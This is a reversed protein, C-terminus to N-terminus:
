SEERMMRVLRQELSARVTTLEELRVGSEVLAVGLDGRTAATCRLRMTCHSAAGYVASHGNAEGNVLVEYSLILGRAVMSELLQVNLGEGSADVEMPGDSIGLASPTAIAQIAGDRLVATRTCLLEVHEVDHTTLLVTVRQEAALMRLQERLDVAAVPDLGSFPEDLLLLRPHHLMARAMALKRRMGTSWRAVKEQRREWLGCALLLDRIRRRRAAADMGAVRAFFDLNNEASLRGYLGDVALEVGVLKRVRPAQTAVNLGLVEASGADPRLLGLLIRLTTSKGAGNAGLYGFIEGEAISFSLGSLCARGAFSKQIDALVVADAV